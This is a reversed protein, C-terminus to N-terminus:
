KPKSPQLTNGKQNKTLLANPNVSIVQVPKSGYQKIERNKTQNTANKQLNLSTGSTVVAISPKNVEVAKKVPIIYVNNQSKVINRGDINRPNLRVYNNTINKVNIVSKGAPIVVTNQRRRVLPVIKQGIQITMRQSVETENSAETTLDIIGNNNLTQSATKNVDSKDGKELTDEWTTPPKAFSRVRLLPKEEELPKDDTSEENVGNSEDEREEDIPDKDVKPKELVESSSIANSSADPLQTSDIEETPESKSNNECDSTGAVDNADTTNSSDEKDELKDNVDIEHITESEVTETVIETSSKVDTEIKSKGSDSEDICDDDEVMSLSTNVIDDDTSIDQDNELSDEENEDNETSTTEENELDRGRMEEQKKVYEDFINALRKEGEQKNQVLKDALQADKLAPDDDESDLYLSFTDWYDTQRSRQLHEGLELFTNKAIQQIKKDDLGLNHSVNCATICEVIDRYDPFIIADVFSGIRKLKNRKSIKSNIFSTIAHDVAVIGTTSFHKPRLYQRGADSNEGTYECYKNYLEVMRHKFKELKIYNSNNEDDFDIEAKELNSIYRRCRDMAGLIKDIKEQITSNREEAEENGKNAETNENGSAASSKGVDNNNNKNSTRNRDNLLTSMGRCRNKMENMVDVIHTYLNKNNMIENRKENLFNTFAESNVYTADLQEYRRKLKNVILNMDESRDKQLCLSIFMPFTDEMPSFTKKEKVVLQPKVVKEKGEIEHNNVSESIDKEIDSIEIYKEGIFVKASKETGVSDDSYVESIKRKQGHTEQNIKNIVVEMKVESVCYSEPKATSKQKKDTKNQVTEDDDDDSSICIVENKEM